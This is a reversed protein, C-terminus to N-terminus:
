APRSQERVKKIARGKNKGYDVQPIPRAKYSKMYDVISEVAGDLKPYPVPRQTIKEAKYHCMAGMAEPHFSQRGLNNLPYWLTRDYGRLWLFQAPALVGGEERATALGRLLATTQFAHQNCKALTKSALNKDRLVRRAEKLLKRDLKMGKEKTWCLAMAGLMDDSEKRKRAAKLCFAALLIQMHSPLAMPGRWPEGLQLAFAERATEGVVNGDRDTIGHYALWEEPGLAEAFMPLDLPVPTGPPRPPQKSPNFKRFPAIVPFTRAQHKILEELNLKRKYQTGPGWLFAWLGMIVLLLALIWKIPVMVLANLISMTGAGLQSKPIDPAGNMWEHFNVNQGQWVIMYDEDLFLALAKMEAWRLWRIGSLVSDGFQIWLVVGFFILTILIITWGITNDYPTSEKDAVYIGSFRWL